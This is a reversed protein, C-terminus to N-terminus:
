RCQQRAKGGVERGVNGREDRADEVVRREEWRVSKEATHERTREALALVDARVADVAIAEM